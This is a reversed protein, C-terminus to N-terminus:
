KGLLPRHDEHLGQRLDDPVDHIVVRYRIPFLRMPCRLVLNGRNDIRYEIPENVSFLSGRCHAELDAHGDPLVGVAQAGVKHFALHDGLHLVVWTGALLAVILGLTELVFKTM